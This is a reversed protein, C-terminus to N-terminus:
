NSATTGSRLFTNGSQPTNDIWMIHLNSESIAMRAGTSDGNNNSLNVPSNFSAGNDVSTAFLIEFNGSAKDQWAVYVNNGAVALQANSSIGSNGSLNIADSFTVGNDTSRVFYIDIDYVPFSMIGTSFTAYVNSGSTAIQLSGLDGARNSLIVPDGFGEGNNTSRAFYIREPVGYEGTPTEGFWVVYVNNGSVALSPHHSSGVLKSLNVPSSFTAGNDSSRAFLIDIKKTDSSRDQWVVYVNSGSAVLQVKGDLTSDGTNKSVNITDGFSEGSDTSVRVFIEYNGHINDRWAVYVNNGSVSVQPFESNGANNSLNVVEFTVGNNTSRAFYVERSGDDGAHWVVFVNSGSTAIEPNSPNIMNGSLNVIPNFSKGNDTSRKFFIATKEAIIGGWVAYVNNGAAVTHYNSLGQIGSNDMLPVMSDFVLQNAYASQSPVFAFVSALLLSTTAIAAILSALKIKRNTATM